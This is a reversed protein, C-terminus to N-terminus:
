EDTDGRLVNGFHDDLFDIRKDIFENIFKEKGVKIKPGNPWREQDREFAGTDRILDHYKNATNILNDKSLIGERLEFYRKATDNAFNEHEYFLKHIPYKPNVRTSLVSENLEYDTLYLYPEIATYRSAFTMDLDWPTVILPEGVKQSYFTNKWQNDRAMLVEILIYYNMYNNMDLFDNAQNTFVSPDEINLLEVFDIMPDWRKSYELNNFKLEISDWKKKKPKKTKDGPFNWGIGEYINGAKDAFDLKHENVYDQIGYLGQYEDDMFFEVYIMDTCNYFPKEKIEDQFQSCIDWSLVDRVRYEDEYLSEIAYKTNPPLGLMSIPINEITNLNYSKKEFIRSSGGRQEYDLMHESVDNNTDYAKLLALTEKDNQERRITEINIIPLGTEIFKYTKYKDGKVALLTNVKTQEDYSIYLDTKFNEAINSSKSSIYFMDKGKDYGSFVEKADILDAKSLTTDKIKGNIFDSNVNKIKDLSQKKSLLSGGQNDLLFFLLLLILLIIIYIWKKKM